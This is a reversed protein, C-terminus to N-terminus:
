SLPAWFPPGSAMFLFLGRSVVQRCNRLGAMLYDWKDGSGFLGTYVVVAQARATDGCEGAGLIMAMV